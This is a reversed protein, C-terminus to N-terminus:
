TNQSLRKAEWEQYTEGTEALKWRSPGHAPAGRVAAAAPGPSSFAYNRTFVSHDREQSLVGTKELRERLRRYPHEGQGSEWKKRARSGKQVVMEGNELIATADVGLKSSQIRFVPLSESQARKMNVEERSKELFCSVRMAPLIMMLTDRFAEMAHEEAESLSAGGPENCNKVSALGVKEATKYLDQELRRVHAKNLDNDRRTIFIATEWWDKKGDHDRIRMAMNESEGIYLEVQGDDKEGLLLYVGTHQAEERDLARLINTRPTMLVHINWNSVKATQMGDPIGDVYFLELSRGRVECTM